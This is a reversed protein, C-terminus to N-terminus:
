AINLFGFVVYNRCAEEREALVLDYIRSGLHQMIVAHKEKGGQM